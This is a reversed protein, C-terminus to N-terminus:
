ALRGLKLRQSKSMQLLIQGLELGEQDGTREADEICLLVHSDHVNFDELVIHLSGWVPNNLHYAEFRDLVEPVTIVASPTTM